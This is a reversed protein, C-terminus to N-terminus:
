EGPRPQRQGAIFVSVIRSFEEPQEQFPFHSSGKMVELRANPFCEVYMRSAEEPQLDKAGHIVLVPNEVKKLADRFDYRLGMSFYVAHPVWGGLGELDTCPTVGIGEIEYAAMIYAALRRNMKKLDEESKSFIDGYDFYDKLFSAFEKGMSKPLRRGVEEFLGGGKAPMVLADAPAVLVLARVHEPFEVAYLSAIFGGFSHGVIILEEDGLIRRIREIDAIQAGLGLAKDLTMMNQFYNSSTFKDVPRTSRGCGRQHYFHMRYEGKLPVMGPWPSSPPYGPGGHVILINKGKGMDFCHLEIDPEVLWAKAGVPQEPPDLPARLNKGDRVMGPTYMSQGEAELAFAALMLIGNIIFGQKM